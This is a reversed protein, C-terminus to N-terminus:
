NDEKKNSTTKMDHTLHKEHKLSTTKIKKPSTTKIKPTSIDDISNLIKAFNM